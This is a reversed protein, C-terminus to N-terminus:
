IMNDTLRNDQQRNKATTREHQIHKSHETTVHIHTHKWIIMLYRPYAKSLARNSGVNLCFKFFQRWLDLDNGFKRISREYIFHIRKVSGFDSRWVKRKARAKRRRTQKDRRLKRALRRQRTSEDVPVVVEPTIDASLKSSSNDKAHAVSQQEAVSLAHLIRQKRRKRLNNLSLEYQIYRLFDIKRAGKGQLVFEFDRRRNVISTIESKKRV